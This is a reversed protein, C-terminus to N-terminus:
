NICKFYGMGRLIRIFFILYKSMFYSIENFFLHMIGYLGSQWPLVINHM